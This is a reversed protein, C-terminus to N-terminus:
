NTIQVKLRNNVTSIKLTSKDLGGSEEHMIWGNLELKDAKNM